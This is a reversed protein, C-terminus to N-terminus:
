VEELTQATQKTETCNELLTDFAADLGKGKLTTATKVATKLKEKGITVCALFADESGGLKVFRNFVETPNTIKEQTRGPKLTFGPVDQGELLRRKAEARCADIVAEALKSRKLFEALHPGTLTSAIADPTTGEPVNRLPTAVELAAAQAEPCIAKAKCYKCAELSPNRPANPEYLAAIIADCESEAQAIDETTYTCVSPEGVLPQIIAVTVKTLGYNQAALVALWRLQMNGTAHEVENRGTKYDIVLGTNDQFVVVEDPKGSFSKNRSFLREEIRVNTAVKSVGMGLVVRDFDRDCSEYTKRQEDNLEDADIECALAAHIKTGDTADQTEEVPPSQKELLFSGPCLAYRQASSASPLGLREDPM